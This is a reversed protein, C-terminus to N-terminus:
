MNNEESNIIQNNLEREFQTNYSLDFLGETNLKLVYDLFDTVLSNKIISQFFIKQKYDMNYQLDEFIDLSMEHKIQDVVVDIDIDINLKLFTQKLFDKLAKEKEHLNEEFFSVDKIM